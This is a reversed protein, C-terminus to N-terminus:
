TCHRAVFKELENEFAEETFGLEWVNTYHEFAEIVETLIHDRNKCVLDVVAIDEVLGRYNGRLVEISAAYARLRFDEKTFGLESDAIEKQRLLRLIIKAREFDRGPYKVLVEYESQAAWILQQRSEEETQVKMGLANSAAFLFMLTLFSRIM